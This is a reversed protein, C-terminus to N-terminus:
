SVSVLGRHDCPRASTRLKVYGRVQTTAGPGSGELDSQRWGQNTLQAVTAEVLPIVRDRFETRRNIVQVEPVLCLPAKKLLELEGQLETRLEELISLPTRRSIIFTGLPGRSVM